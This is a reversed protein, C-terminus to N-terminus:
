KRSNICRLYAMLVRDRRGPPYTASVAARWEPASAFAYAEEDVSRACMLLFNPDPAGPATPKAPVAARPAAPAITPAPVPTTRARYFSLNARRGDVTQISGSWILLGSQIRKFLTGTGHRIGERLVIIEIQGEVYNTGSLRYTQSLNDLRFTGVLTNDGRWDVQATIPSGDFEGTYRQLQPTNQGRAPTVLACALLGLIFQSRM